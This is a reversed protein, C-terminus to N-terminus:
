TTPTYFRVISNAPIVPNQVYAPNLTMVDVVNAGLQTAVQALTSDKPVRYFSVPKAKAVQTAKLDYCASKGLEAAQFLPWNLPSANVARNLSDELQQAQYLYNDIQGAFEKSLLTPLDTVSRIQMMLDTFTFPPVYPQPVVAPNLAITGADIDSAAQQANALPSPAALDFGLEDINDDTELWVCVVDVGGRRTASWTTQLSECKCTFEGLEPQVFLGTTRDACAAFFQRWVLPYLPRDWSEQPGQSLGNIFPIRARFQLPHRGTGEIHAGDRDAFKHPALDQRLEISTEEYPVEIARWSMPLLNGFLQDTNTAVNQPTTAAAAQSGTINGALGSSALPNLIAMSM